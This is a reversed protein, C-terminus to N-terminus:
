IKSLPSLPHIILTPVSLLSKTNFLLTINCENKMEENTKNQESRKTTLERIKERWTAWWNYYTQDEPRKAFYDNCNKPLPGDKFTDNSYDYTPLSYIEMKSIEAGVFNQFARAKKRSKCEYWDEIQTFCMRSSQEEEKICQVMRQHFTFCPHTLMGVSHFPEM